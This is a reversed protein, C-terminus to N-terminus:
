QGRGQGECTFVYKFSQSQKPSSSYTHINSLSTVSWFYFLISYFNYMSFTNKQSLPLSFLNVLALNQSWIDKIQSGLDSSNHRIAVGKAGKSNQQLLWMLPSEFSRASYLQSPERDTEICLACLLSAKNGGFIPLTAGLNIQIHNQNTEKFSEQM